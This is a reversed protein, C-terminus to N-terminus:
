NDPERITFSMTLSAPTAAFEPIEYSYEDDSEAFAPATKCWERDELLPLATIPRGDSIMQLSTLYRRALRSYAQVATLLPLDRIALIWHNQDPLLQGNDDLINHFQSFEPPRISDLRHRQLISNPLEARLDGVKLQQNTQGATRLELTNKVRLQVVIYTEDKDERRTVISDRLNFPQPNAPAPTTALVFSLKGINLLGQRLGILPDDQLTSVQAGDLPAPDNDLLSKTVVDLNTNHVKLGQWVLEGAVAKLKGELPAAILSLYSRVVGFFNAAAVIPKAGVPTQVKITLINGTRPSSNVIPAPKGDARTLVDLVLRRAADNPPRLIIRSFGLKLEGNAPIAASTELVCQGGESKILAVVRGNKDFAQLLTEEVM